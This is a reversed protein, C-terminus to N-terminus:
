LGSHLYTKSEQGRLQSCCKTAVSCKKIKKHRIATKTVFHKEIRQLLNYQVIHQDVLCLSLWLNQISLELSM